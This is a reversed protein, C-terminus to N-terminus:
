EYKVGVANLAEIAQKLALNRKEKPDRQKDYLATINKLAKLLLPAAVIIQANELMNATPTGPLQCVVQDIEPDITELIEIYNKTFHIKWERKRM